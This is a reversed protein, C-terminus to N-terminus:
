RRLHGDFAAHLHATDATPASVLVDSVPMAVADPLYPWATRSVTAPTSHIMESFAFVGIKAARAVLGRFLLLPPPMIEM